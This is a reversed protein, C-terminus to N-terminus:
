VKVREHVVATVVLTKTATIGDATATLLYTHEQVDGERGSCGFSFTYEDEAPYTDYVGPGDISISVESAGTVRWGLTAPRGEIPNATTGGPCQPQHVIRFTEIKPGPKATPTGTDKPGPQPDGAANGPQPDGAADGPQPDGAADGPALSPIAESSPAIPETTPGLGSAADLDSRGPGALVWTIGALIAVGAAVGAAIAVWISRSRNTLNM